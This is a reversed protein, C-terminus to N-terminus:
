ASVKSAVQPIIREDRSLCTRLLLGNGEVLSLVFPRHITPCLAFPVFSLIMILKGNMSIGRCAHGSNMSPSPVLPWDLPLRGQALDFPRLM